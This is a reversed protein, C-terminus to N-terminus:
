VRSRPTCRSFFSYFATLNLLKVGKINKACNLLVLNLKHAYCHVFIAQPCQQHVLTQLGSNHSAMVSAGDYIQRKYVDLSPFLGFSAEVDLYLIRQQPFLFAQLSIPCTCLHQQLNCQFTFFFNYRNFLVNKSWM